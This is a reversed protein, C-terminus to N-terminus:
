GRRIAAAIISACNQGQDIFDDPGGCEHDSAVRAAREREEAVGRAYAADILMTARYILELCRDRDLKIPGLHEEILAIKEAQNM